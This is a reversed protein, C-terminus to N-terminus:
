QTKEESQCAADGAGTKGTIIAESLDWLRSVAASNYAINDRDRPKREHCDKYYNGWTIEELPAMGLYLQTQAGYWTSKWFIRLIPGLIYLVGWFLKDGIWFGTSINDWLGTWIVGPHCSASVILGGGRENLEKSFMVNALKSNCYARRGEYAGEKALFIDDWPIRGLRHASSSVNIVRSPNDKTAQARLSDMLLRTLRFHGFHNVGIQMEYGDKTEQRQHFAMVGANNILLDLKDYKSKFANAFSEISKSSSLDCQIFTVDCGTTEKIDAVAATGRQVNRTAIVVKCGAAALTAATVKGIGM